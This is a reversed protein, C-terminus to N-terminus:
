SRGNNSQTNVRTWQTTRNQQLHSYCVVVVVILFNFRLSINLCSLGARVGNVESSDFWVSIYPHKLADDVNIRKHPDVVLMKGLLDRASAATLGQHETSDPPFLQDPFLREVSYGSYRPRNEVYNRVSQQLQQMFSQSPTGLQEIIKNWQDIDPDLSTM